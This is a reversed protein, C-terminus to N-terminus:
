EPWGTEERLKNASRPFVKQMYAMIPAEYEGFEKQVHEPSHILMHYKEHKPVRGPEKTRFFEVAEKPYGLFYGIAAFYDDNTPAEALAQHYADLTEKGLSVEYNISLYGPENRNNEVCRTFSLGLEEIYHKLLVDDSEWTTYFSFICVPKIGALVGALDFKDESSILKEDDIDRCAAEFDEKAMREMSEDISDVMDVIRDFASQDDDPPILHTYSEM